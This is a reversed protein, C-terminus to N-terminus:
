FNNEDLNYTERIEYREPCGELAKKLVERAQIFEAIRAQIIGTKDTRIYEERASQRVAAAETYSGNRDKFKGLSFVKPDNDHLYSVLLDYKDKESRGTFGDYVFLKYMGHEEYVRIRPSDSARLVDYGRQVFAEM